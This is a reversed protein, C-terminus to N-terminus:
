QKKYYHGIISVGIICLIIGFFCEKNINEKFIFYSVLLTLIINLNMITRTYGINPTYKLAHILFKFELIIFIAYCILIIFFKKDCKSLTNYALNKDYLLYLFSFFGMLIFTLALIINNHYKTKDILKLFITGSASAISAVFALIIWFDHM